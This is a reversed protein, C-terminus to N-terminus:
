NLPAEEGLDDPEIPTIGVRAFGAKNLLELVEEESRRLDYALEALSYEDKELEAKIADMIVRSMDQGSRQCKRRYRKFMAYDDDNLELTTTKM